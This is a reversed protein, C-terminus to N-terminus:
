TQEIPHLPLPGFRRNPTPELIPGGCHTVKEMLLDVILLIQCLWLGLGYRTFVNLNDRSALNRGPRRGAAPLEVADDGQAQHRLTADISTEVKEPGYTAKAVSDPAIEWFGDL